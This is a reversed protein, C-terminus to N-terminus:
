HYDRQSINDVRKINNEGFSVTSTNFINSSIILKDQRILHDRITVYDFNSNEAFTLSAYFREGEKCGSAELVLKMSALLHVSNQEINQGMKRQLSEWDASWNEFRTNPMIPKQAELLFLAIIKPDYAGGYRTNLDAHLWHATESRPEDVEDYRKQLATIQLLTSSQQMPNEM